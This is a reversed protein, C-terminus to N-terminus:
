ERPCNPRKWHSVRGDEDFYVVGGYPYYWISNGSHYRKVEDPQGLLTIVKRSPMGARLRDWNSEDCCLRKEMGAVPQMEGHTAAWDPARRPGSSCGAVLGGLMLMCGITKWNM